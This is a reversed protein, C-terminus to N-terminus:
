YLSGDAVCHFIFRFYSSRFHLFIWNIKLPFMKRNRWSFGMCFDMEAVKRQRISWNEVAAIEERTVLVFQFISFVLVLVSRLHMWQIRKMQKSRLLRSEYNPVEGNNFHCVHRRSQSTPVHPMDLSRITYFCSCTLLKAWELNLSRVDVLIKFIIFKNPKHNETNQTKQQFTKFILQLFQFFIYKMFINFINLFFSFSYNFHFYVSHNFYDFCNNQKRHILPFLLSTSSFLLIRYQILDNFFLLIGVDIM